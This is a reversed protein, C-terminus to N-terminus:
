PIPLFMSTGFHSILFYLSYPVAGVVSSEVVVIDGAVLPVDAEEGNRIKSLDLPLDIKSGDGQERMLTAHSSFRAGGAAAIAGLATLGSTIPFAGPKDVWGEVTVQGAAPVIITDGPRAPLELYSQGDPQTLNITVQHFAAHNTRPQVTQALSAPSLGPFQAANLAAPQVRNDGALSRYDAHAASGGEPAPILIVLAAADNNLGGAQGIMTMLTDSPSAITYRGPKAVSGLVAVERNQTQEEFVEVQPQHMYKTLRRVLEAHLNDATMGTVNIEGVLPISITNTESVRVELQKLEEMQPVSIRLLDGPGIPFGSAESEGSSQVRRMWLERLAGQGFAPRATEGPVMETDGQILAAQPRPASSNPNMGAAGACGLLLLTSSIYYFGSLLRQAKHLPLM